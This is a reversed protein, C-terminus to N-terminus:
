VKGTKAYRQAQRSNNVRRRGMVKGSAASNRRRHILIPKNLRNNTSSM